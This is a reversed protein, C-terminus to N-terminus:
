GKLKLPEKDPLPFYENNDDIGVPKECRALWHMTSLEPIATLLCKNEFRERAIAVIQDFINTQVNQFLYWDKKDLHLLAIQTRGSYEYVDLVRFFSGRQCIYLGWNHDNVYQGARFCHNSLIAFRHTMIMGGVRDSADCFAPETIIIGPTYKAATQPPLNVDRVFMQLGPLIKNFAAEFIEQEAEYM